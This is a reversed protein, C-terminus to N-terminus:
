PQNPSTGLFCGWGLLDEPGAACVADRRRLYFNTAPTKVASDLWNSPLNTTSTATWLGVLGAYLVILGLSLVVLNGLQGGVQANLRSAQNSLDAAKQKTIEQIEKILGSFWLSLGLGFLSGTVFRVLNTSIYVPEGTFGYPSVEAVTLITQIGGDLAIPIAFPLVWYWKITGLWGKKIAIAGLLLGIWIGTDRACWAYQYDFLYLSRHHFQHCFFSYVFYLGKAFSALLPMQEGLKLLVPALVPLLSFLAVGFIYLNYLSLNIKRM